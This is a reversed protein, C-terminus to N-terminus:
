LRWRIFIFYRVFLLFCILFFDFASPKASWNGRWHWFGPRGGLDLLLWNTVVVFALSLTLSWISIPAGDIKMKTEGASDDDIRQDFEFSSQSIKNKSTLSILRM